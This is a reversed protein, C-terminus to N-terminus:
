RRTNLPWFQVPVVGIDNSYSPGFGLDSALKPWADFTDGSKTRDLCVATSYLNTGLRRFLFVTGFPYSKPCACANTTYDPRIPYNPVENHWYAATPTTLFYWTLLTVM